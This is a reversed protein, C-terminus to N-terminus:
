KYKCAPCYRKVIAETINLKSFSVGYSTNLISFYEVTDQSTKLHNYIWQHAKIKQDEKLYSILIVRQTVPISKMYASLLFYNKAKENETKWYEEIFSEDIDDFSQNDAHYFLFHKYIYTSDCITVKQSYLPFSVFCLSFLMIYKKM